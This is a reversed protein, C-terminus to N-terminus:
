SNQRLHDFRPSVSYAGFDKVLGSVECLITPTRTLLRRLIHFEGLSAAQRVQCPAPIQLIFFGGLFSSRGNNPPQRVSTGEKPPFVSLFSRSRKPLCHRKLRCSGSRRSRRQSALNGLSIRCPSGLGATTSSMAHLAAPSQSKSDTSHCAESKTRIGNMCCLQRRFLIREFVFEKTWCHLCDFLLITLSLGL